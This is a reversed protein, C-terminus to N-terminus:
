RLNRLLISGDFYLKTPKDLFETSTFIFTDLVFLFIFITVEGMKMSKELNAESIVLVFQCKWGGNM